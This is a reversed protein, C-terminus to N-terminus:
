EGTLPKPRPWYTGSAGQFWGAARDRQAQERVKPDRLADIRRQEPENSKLEPKDFLTLQNM